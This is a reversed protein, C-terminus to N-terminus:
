KKLILDKLDKVYEEYFNILKKNSKILDDRKKLEAKHEKDKRSIYDYFISAVTIPNDFKEEVKKSEVLADIAISQEYLERFKAQLEKPAKDYMFGQGHVELFNEFNTEEVDIEKLAEDLRILNSIGIELANAISEIKGLSPNLKGREYKEIASLSIGTMEALEKQTLGKEKRLKKIREGIM